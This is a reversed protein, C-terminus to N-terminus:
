YSYRRIAGELVWSRVMVEFVQWLQFWWCYSGLVFSWLYVEVEFLVLVLVGYELVSVIVVVGLALWDVKRRACRIGGCIMALCLLLAMMGQMSARPGRLVKTAFSRGATWALAAGLGARGCCGGIFSGQVVNDDLIGFNCYQFQGALSQLGTILDEVASASLSLSLSLSLSPPPPPCNDILANMMGEYGKSVTYAVRTKAQLAVAFGAAVLVSALIAGFIELLRQPDMKEFVSNGTIAEILLASAFVMMALRGSLVEWDQVKYSLEINAALLEFFNSVKADSEVAIMGEGFERLSCM